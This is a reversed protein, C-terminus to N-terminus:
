SEFFLSRILIYIWFLIIPLSLGILKKKSVAGEWIKRHILIRGIVILALLLSILLAVIFIFQIFALDKPLSDKTNGFLWRTILGLILVAGLIMPSIYALLTTRKIRKKHYESVM